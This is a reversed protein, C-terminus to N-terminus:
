PINALMTSSQRVPANPTGRPRFRQQPIADIFEAKRKPQEAPDREVFGLKDLKVPGGSRRERGLKVRGFEPL